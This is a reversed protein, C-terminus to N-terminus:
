SEPSASTSPKPSESPTEEGSSRLRSWLPRLVGGGLSRVLDIMQGFDLHEDILEAANGEAGAALYLPLWKSQADDYLEVRFRACHDVVLRRLTKADKTTHSILTAIASGLAAFGALDFKDRSLNLEAMGFKLKDFTGSAELLEVYHELYDATGFGSLPCYRLQPTEALMREIEARRPADDGLKELEARLGKGLDLVLPTTHKPM